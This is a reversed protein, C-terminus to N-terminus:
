AASNPAIARCTSGVSCQCLGQMMQFSSCRLVHIHVNECPYRCPRSSLSSSSGIHSIGLARYPLCGTWAPASRVPCGRWAHRAAQRLRQRLTADYRLSPLGMAGRPLCAHRTAGAHRGRTRQRVARQAPSGCASADGAHRVARLPAHPLAIRCVLPMCLMCLVCPVRCLMRTRFRYISRLTSLCPLVLGRPKETSVDHHRVCARSCRTVNDAVPCRCPFLVM